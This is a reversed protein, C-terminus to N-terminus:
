GKFSVEKVVLFVESPGSPSPRDLDVCGLVYLTLISYDSPAWAEEAGHCRWPGYRTV